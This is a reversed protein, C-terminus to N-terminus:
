HNSEDVNVHAIGLNYAFPVLGFSVYNGELILKKLQDSKLDVILPFKYEEVWHIVDERPQALRFNLDGFWFVCDFNQTM